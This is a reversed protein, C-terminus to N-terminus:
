EGSAMLEDLSGVNLLRRGRVLTLKIRGEKILRYITNPSLGYRARVGQVPLWEPKPEVKVKNTLRV